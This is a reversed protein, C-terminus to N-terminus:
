CYRGSSFLNKSKLWWKKYNWIFSNQIKKLKDDDVRIQSILILIIKKEIATMESIKYNIIKNSKKVLLNKNFRTEISNEM